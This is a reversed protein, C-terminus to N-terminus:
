NKKRKQLLWDMHVSQLITKHIWFALTNVRSLTDRLFQVTRKFGYCMKAQDSHQLSVNPQWVEM